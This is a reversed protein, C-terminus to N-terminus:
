WAVYALGMGAAALGLGVALSGLVNSLGSIPTGDEVLRVTEWGFTSFTTYTGCFGTGVILYPVDGMGHYLTMGALFGLLLAGTANVVYTGWPFAARTKANVVQDVVFRAPAGLVAGAGVEVM